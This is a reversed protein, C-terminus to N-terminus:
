KRAEDNPGCLGLRKRPGEGGELENGPKEKEEQCRLGRREIERKRRRREGSCGGAVGLGIM